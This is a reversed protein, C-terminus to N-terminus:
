AAACPVEHLLAMDNVNSPTTLFKVLEELVPALTTHAAVAAEGIVKKENVVFADASQGSSDMVAGAPLQSIAKYVAQLPPLTKCVAELM